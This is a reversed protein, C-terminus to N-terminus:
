LGKYQTTIVPDLIAGNQDVGCSLTILVPGEDRQRAAHFLGDIPLYNRSCSWGHAQLDAEAESLQRGQAAVTRAFAQDQEILVRQAARNDSCSAVLAITVFAFAARM